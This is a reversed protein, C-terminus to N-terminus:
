SSLFAFVEQNSICCLPYFTFDDYLYGLQPKFSHFENSIHFYMFFILWEFDLISMFPTIRCSIVTNM